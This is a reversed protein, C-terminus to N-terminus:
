PQIEFRVDFRELYDVQQTRTWRSQDMHLLEDQTEWETIIVIDAPRSQLPYRDLSHWTGRRLLYGVSGDILFARVDDPKPLADPDPDTPAAVAVVARTNGLPIFTQSVSFHRELFRFQLGVPESRYAMVHPAGSLEFGSNWGVSSVGRFDPPQDKPGLIEGFPAFADETLPEVPVRVIRAMQGGDENTRVRPEAAFNEHSVM